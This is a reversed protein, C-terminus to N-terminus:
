HSFLIPLPPKSLLSKTAGGLIFERWRAHGYAGMALVDVQHSATYAELVEGIRRGNADVKDLVVDIGHRALNKALAEASRKTDLKKENAVTVIRVNRAKELLPLADSVARAATRSFDWAVAVTGLQFPRPRPSQPVVLTPRGSGFIVAEAYWQDYSEPVPVITLDRLRAYDALLDPVAFTPCKELYTEYLIGATEAAADFAALMDEASKRSKEAEGALISPINAISGSLFHGPVQVHVECAVAALHAGLAAAISVAEEAVSAPTPDPYSTLTLLIDKFAM